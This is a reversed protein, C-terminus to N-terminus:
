ASVNLESLWRFSRDDVGAVEIQEWYQAVKLPTTGVLASQYLDDLYVSGKTEMSVGHQLLCKITEVHGLSAAVLAPTGDQDPLLMDARLSHLLQVM